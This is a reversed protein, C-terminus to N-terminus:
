LHIMLPVSGLLGAEEDPTKNKPLAALTPALAPDHDDDNTMKAVQGDINPYLSAM